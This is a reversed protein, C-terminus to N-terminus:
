FNGGLNKRYIGKKFLKLEDLSKELRKVAEVNNKYHDDSNVIAEIIKKKDEQNM